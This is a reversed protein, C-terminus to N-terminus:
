GARCLFGNVPFLILNHCRTPAFSHCSMLNPVSNHMILVYETECVSLHAHDVKPMRYLPWGAVDPNDGDAYGPRASGILRRECDTLIYERSRVDGISAKSENLYRVDVTLLLADAISYIKRQPGLLARKIKLLATQTENYLVGSKIMYQM